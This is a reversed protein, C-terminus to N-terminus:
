EPVQRITISHMSTSKWIPKVSSQVLCLLQGAQVLGRVKLEAVALDFTVEASDAFEMHLATVGHYLGMRRQVQESDTFCFVEHSPRYHSLFAPMKGRHSFVVLPGQMSGAMRVAHYALQRSLAEDRQLEMAATGPWQLATSPDGGLGQETRRAVTAMVELAKLPYAGYATEGSLMVADAGEKVAVSIDTVEARTPTPLTVMSELM